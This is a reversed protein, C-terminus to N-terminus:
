MDINQLITHVQNFDHTKREQANSSCSAYSYYSHVGHIYTALDLWINCFHVNRYGYLFAVCTLLPM